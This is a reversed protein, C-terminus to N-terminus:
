EKTKTKTKENDRLLEEISCHYLAALALLRGTRPKNQGSEWLSVAANSVGLIDVVDQVSLGAAVRASKFSM